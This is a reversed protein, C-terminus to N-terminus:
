ETQISTRFGTCKSRLHKVWGSIRYVPLVDLKHAGIIEMEHGQIWIMGLLPVLHDHTYTEDSM